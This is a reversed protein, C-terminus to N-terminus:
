QVELTEVTITDGSKTGSVKASVAANPPANPDARDARNKIAEVAKTNGADDLKYSKGSVHLLFATTASTAACTKMNKQTEMCTADLLTGNWSEAFALVAFFAVPAAFTLVKRM